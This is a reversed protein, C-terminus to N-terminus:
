YCLAGLVSTSQTVVLALSVIEAKSYTEPQMLGKYALEYLSLMCFLSIVALILM